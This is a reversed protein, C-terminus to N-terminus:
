SLLKSVIKILISETRSRLYFDQLRNEIGGTREVDQLRNEMGGTREVDQLRNEMGGTREVDQLRNALGGTREVPDTNQNLTSDFESEELPDWGEVCAECNCTFHFNKQLYEQRTVTDYETWHVTYMDTLEAGKEIDRAAVVIISSGASVRVLNPNCSHNLSAALCPYVAAAITEQEEEQHVPHTNVNVIRVLDEILNGILIEDSSFTEDISEDSSNSGFYGSMRLMRLMIVAVIDLEIQQDISNIQHRVLNFLSSYSSSIEDNKNSGRSPKYELFQDYNLRFFQLPKQTIIRFVLFLKGLSKAEEKLVSTLQIRCEYRHHSNLARQKCKGSCWSVDECKTCSEASQVAPECSEALQVAPECSKSLQVAPECSEALQVAPECSEALQVAPELLKCCYNCFRKSESIIPFIAIPDEIAIIEGRKIAEKAVQFRGKDELYQIELKRSLVSVNEGPTFGLQEALVTRTFISSEEENEPNEQSCKEEDHVTHVTGNDLNKFLCSTIDRPILSQVTNLREESTKLDKIADAKIFTKSSFVATSFGGM